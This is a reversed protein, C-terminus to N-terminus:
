LPNATQVGVKERMQDWFLLLKDKVPAEKWHQSERSNYNYFVEM